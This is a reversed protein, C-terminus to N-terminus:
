VIQPYYHSADTFKVMVIIISNNSRILMEYRFFETIKALENVKAIWQYPSTTNILFDVLAYIGAQSDM